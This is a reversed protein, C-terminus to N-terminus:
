KAPKIETVIYKGEVFAARFRVKDGVKVKDLIAAKRVEFAMAMPPMGLNKIEEHKLTIKRGAKDVKQVEGRTLDNIGQAGVLPSGAASALAAVLALQKLANM